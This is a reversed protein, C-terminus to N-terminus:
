KNIKNKKQDSAGGPDERRDGGATGRWEKRGGFPGLLTGRAAEIMGTEEISRRLYTGSLGSWLQCICLYSLNRGVNGNWSHSVPFAGTGGDDTEWTRMIRASIPAVLLVRRMTPGGGGM